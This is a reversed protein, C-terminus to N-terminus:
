SVLGSLLPCSKNQANNFHRELVQQNRLEIRDNTKLSGDASRVGPNGRIHVATLIEQMIEDREPYWM